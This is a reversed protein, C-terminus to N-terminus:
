EEEGAFRYLRTRTRVLLDNDIPVPTAVVIDGLETKVPSQLGNDIRSVVAGGDESICYLLDGIVVPSSFYKARTRPLQDTWLKEGTELDVCTVTGKDGLVYVRGDVVCPTPSDSGVGRLGWMRASQTVDGSGGLRFATLLEGRGHPVVAIGGAVAASAINRWMPQNDPNIGGCEWLLRGTKADHGTLHNAGLTVVTEVGDLMVVAPTTYSQDSETACEYNRPQKWVVEGTQIDFTALYSEGEHMAAVLVGASTLVPSTGLDWWLKGEGLEEALNVRWLPEGDVSFCALTTDKFYAVVRKGDTVPSPNAGSANRHKGAVREGFKQRWLQQGETTLCIVGNADDIESTLFLRDRWVVPTSAGPGPLDVVWRANTAPDLRTPRENAATPEADNDTHPDAHPVTHPWAAVAAGLPGVLAILLLWISTKM